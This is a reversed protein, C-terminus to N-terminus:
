STPTSGSGAHRRGQSKARSTVRSTSPFHRVPSCCADRHGSDTHAEVGSLGSDAEESNNSCGADKELHEAEEAVATVPHSTSTGNNFRSHCDHRKTPNAVNFLEFSRLQFR